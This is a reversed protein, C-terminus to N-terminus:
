GSGHVRNRGAHKAAYLQADARAIAVRPSEDAAIEVVGASITVTVGPFALAEIRNRAREAFVTAGAATVDPLLVLFEDGGWRVALDSARFTSALVRSVQVLIEDGVAHGHIDNVNKFGDLDLLALSFPLGARRARAVDRKLAREGAHRNSLGTLPDTLALRALEAWEDDGRRPDVAPEPLDSGLEREIEAAIKRALETLLDIQAASFSLPKFDLLGLAGVLRQSPAVLPVTVFGQFRLQLAPLSTGFLSQRDLDPVILPQRTQLVQHLVPWLQSTGRPEHVDTYALVRRTDRMEVAMVVVPARFAKATRTMVKRFLEDPDPRMSQARSPSWNVSSLASAVAHEIHQLSATKEGIESIGLTGRLKSAAARLEPFASFVLVATRDPPSARRLDAILSFGDTHPLSLDTVLLVPAERTRLVERASEGDRVVVAELRQAEVARRYM